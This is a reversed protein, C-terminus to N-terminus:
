SFDNNVFLVKKKKIAWFLNKLIKQLDCIKGLHKKM